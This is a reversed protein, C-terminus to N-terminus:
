SMGQVWTLMFSGRLSLASNWFFFLFFFLSTWFCLHLVICLRNKFPLITRDLMRISSLFAYLLTFVLPFEHFYCVAICIVRSLTPLFVIHTLPNTLVLLAKSQTQTTPVCINSTLFIEYNIIVFSILACMNSRLAKELRALGQSKSQQSSSREVPFPSCSFLQCFQIMFCHILDLRFAQLTSPGCEWRPSPLLKRLFPFDWLLSRPLRESGWRSRFICSVRFKAMGYWGGMLKEMESPLDDWSVPTNIKSSFGSALVGDAYSM